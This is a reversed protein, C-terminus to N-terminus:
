TKVKLDFLYVAEGTPKLFLVWRDLLVQASFAQNLYQEPLKFVEELIQKQSIKLLSLREGEFNAM